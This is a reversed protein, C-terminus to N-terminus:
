AGAVESSAVVRNRGEQKARYLAADAAGLLQNGDAVQDHLGAVGLSLTVPIPQHQYVIQLQQTAERLQEAKLLADPLSAEPLILTFEEGGYRCAVDAKRLSQVMLAAVLRLVEDGGDHGHTDNVRKFHDIDLMILALPQGNRRSRSIERDLSEELYRRNFLGTLPDRVSQRRLTEQLQLNSLALSIQEAVTRALQQRDATLTQDPPTQVHLLGLTERQATLPLCMYRAGNDHVHPCPLDDASAVVHMRNRRLAWCDDPTFYTDTSVTGGWTITAEVHDRAGNLVCLAGSEAPFLQRVSRGIIKYAEDV